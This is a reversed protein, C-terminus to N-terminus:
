AVAVQVTAVLSECAECRITLTGPERDYRVTVGATMHCRARLYLATHDKHNCGPVQCQMQNLRAMTLPESMRLGGQRITESHRFHPPCYHINKSITHACRVCIPADCTTQKGRRIVPYDCLLTSRVHCWRCYTAQRRVCVIHTIM